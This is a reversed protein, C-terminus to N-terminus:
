SKRKPIFITRGEGTKSNEAPIRIFREEFDIDEVKLKTFEGVRMGTAYLLTVILKDRYNDISGRLRDWQEKKLYKISNKFSRRINRKRIKAM